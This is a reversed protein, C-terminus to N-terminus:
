SKYEFRACNKRKQVLQRRSPAKRFGKKTSLVERASSSSARPLPLVPFSLDKVQPFPFRQGPRGCRGAVRHRGDTCFRLFRALNHGKRQLSTCFRFIRVAPVDGLMGRRGAGGASRLAHWMASSRPSSARLCRTAFSWSASRGLRGKAHLASQCPAAASGGSTWGGGARLAPASRMHSAAHLDVASGLRSSSARAPEHGKIRGDAM